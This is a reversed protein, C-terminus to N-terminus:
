RSLDIEIRNPGKSLGRTFRWNSSGSPNELYITISDQYFDAVETQMGGDTVTVTPPAGLLCPLLLTDDEITFLGDDTQGVITPSPATEMIVWSTDSVVPDFEFEAVLVIGYFGPIVTAGTSDTGDWSVTWIGAAHDEGNILTRIWSRHYDEVHVWITSNNPLSFTIQTSPCARPAPQPKALFESHNIIGVTYGDAPQGTLDKVSLELLPGNNTPNTVSDDSCGQALLVTAVFAILSLLCRLM